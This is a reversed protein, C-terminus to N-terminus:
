EMLNGDIIIATSVAKNMMRNSLRQNLDSTAMTPEIRVVKDTANKNRAPNPVGFIMYIKQSATMSQSPELIIPM